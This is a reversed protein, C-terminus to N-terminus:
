CINHSTDSSSEGSELYAQLCKLSVGDEREIHETALRPVFNPDPDRRDAHLCGPAVIVVFDSKEVYRNM